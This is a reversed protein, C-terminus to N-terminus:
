KFHHEYPRNRNKLPSQLMSIQYESSSESINKKKMKKNRKKYTTDCYKLSPIYKILDESASCVSCFLSGAASATLFDCKHCLYTEARLRPSIEQKTIFVRCLTSVINKFM